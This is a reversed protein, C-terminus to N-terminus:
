ACRLWQVVASDSCWRRIRDANGVVCVQVPHLQELAERELAAALTGQGRADSLLWCSHAPAVLVRCSGWLLSGMGDGGVSGGKDTGAHMAGQLWRDAAVGPRLAQNGQQQQQDESMFASYAQPAPNTFHAVLCVCAPPLAPRPAHAAAAASSEDALAAAAAPHLPRPALLLARLSGCCLLPQSSLPTHGPRSTTAAALLRQSVSRVCGETLGKHPAQIHDAGRQGSHATTIGDGGV